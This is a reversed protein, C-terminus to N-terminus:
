ILMAMVMMTMVAKLKTASEERYNRDLVQVEVPSGDAPEWISVTITSKGGVGYIVQYKIGSVM